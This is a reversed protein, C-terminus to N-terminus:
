MFDLLYGEPSNEFHKRFIVTKELYNLKLVSSLVTFFVQNLTMILDVIHIFPYLNLYLSLIGLLSFFLIGLLSSHLSFLSLFNIFFRTSFIYYIIYFVQVCLTVYFTEGSNLRERNKLVLSLKKIFLM